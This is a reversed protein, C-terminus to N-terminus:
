FLIVFSFSSFVDWRVDHLVGILADRIRQNPLVRDPDLWTKIANFLSTSDLIDFYLDVNCLQSLVFPLVALKRLGPKGEELSMDDSQSFLLFLQTLPGM